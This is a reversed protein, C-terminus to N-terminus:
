TYTYTYPHRHGPNDFMDAVRFPPTQSLGGAWNAKLACEAPDAGSLGRGTVAVQAAAPHQPTALGPWNQHSPHPKPRETGVLRDQALLRQRAPPAAFSLQGVGYRTHALTTPPAVSLGHHARSRAPKQERTVKGGRTAVASPCHCQGGRMCLSSLGLARSVSVSALSYHQAVLEHQLEASGYTAGPWYVFVVASPATPALENATRRLSRVLREMQEAVSSSNQWLRMDTMAFELLFLVGRRGNGAPGLGERLLAERM